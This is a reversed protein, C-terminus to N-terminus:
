WHRQKRIAEPWGVRQGSRFSQVLRRQAHRCIAGVDCDRQRELGHCHVFQRRKRHRQERDAEPWGVGSGFRLSQSWISHYRGDDQGWIAIANGDSDVAIQPNEADGESEELPKAGGWGTALMFHNAWISNRTGDYRKWVAIADGRWNMALQPCDDSTTASAEIPAAANWGAGAVFRSAWIHSGVSDSQHWVAIANGNSDVAVVPASADITNNTELPTAAEDWGTGSVYRNAWIHSHTGDNQSWVAIANGSSDVAVRPEWADGADAKQIAKPLSWGTASAFVSARINRRAGDSQYWVAVANGNANVALQPYAGGAADISKAVGWRGERTTFSWTVPAGTLSNGDLDTLASTLTATYRESLALPTNPTFLATADDLAVTGPVAASGLTLLFNNTNLTRPDVPESFTVRISNRTSVGKANSEPSMSVIEPATRADGGATSSNGTGANSTIAGGAASNDIGGNGASGITQGSVGAVSSGTGAAGTGGQSVWDDAGGVAGRSAIGAAGGVEGRRVNGSASHSCGLLVGLGISGWFRRMM